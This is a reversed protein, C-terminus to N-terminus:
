HAAKSKRRKVLSFRLDMGIAESVRLLTECTPNQAVGSELKSLASKDIGSAKAVDALSLKRKIRADRLQARISMISLYASQKIPGSYEGSAKLAQLSPKEAQFKDRIAKDSAIQAPNLKSKRHTSIRKM